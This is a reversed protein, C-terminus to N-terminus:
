LLLLAAYAAVGVAFAGFRSGREEPVEEKLVNLVIGGALFATMSAVFLESVDTVRGAFWGGVVAAALIWRGARTYRDKHHEWLSFDTVLFHLAMVVIFFVLARPTPEERHVLLYGILVNYLSFSAVHVWFVGGTTEDIGARGARRRRSELALRDLGYYLTLGLLAVVYVHKEIAELVPGGAADFREQARALEPLLHMFVYAVSIGGAGSLWRNRPVGRLFRLRVAFVHTLALAFAGAAAIVSM